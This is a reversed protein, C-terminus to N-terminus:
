PNDIDNAELFARYEVLMQFTVNPISTLQEKSLKLLQNLTVINETQMVGKFDESFTSKSILYKEPQISNMFRTANVFISNKFLFSAKFCRM